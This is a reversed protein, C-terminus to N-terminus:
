ISLQDYIDNIEEQKIGLYKKTIMISSHNFIESLLILSRDDSNNVEWVRRGFTKRLTHSSPNTTKIKYKKLIEKLKVNVWQVNIAKTRYKNAFVLQSIEPCKMEEYCKTIISKLDDNIKITRHKKTKQENIALVEVDLIQIWTLKLIDSIRIGLFCGLSILLCFKPEQDRQLKLIMQTLDSWNIYGTTTKQGKLAM